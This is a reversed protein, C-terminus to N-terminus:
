QADFFNAAAAVCFPAVLTAHYAEFVASVGGDSAGGLVAAAAVGLKAAHFGTQLNGDAGSAATGSDLDLVTVPASAPGHTSWYAQMLRTNLYFVQPDQDGGCLLTPSAPTWNRLDNLALAQRFPSAPAAAPENTSAVPFSGDPHALADNLYAVRYSNLLLAPTGFGQAFVPALDAPATAPTIFALSPGPPTSDFLADPPLLGAAYIQSRSMTGPLLGTVGPAYQPAFVDATSAYLNGYSKQYGTLLLATVVPSGGSVQGAFEADVFAALAYPGSMPAAATVNLHAAELARQTAMAVYGGQSYGTIFLQGNDGVQSAKPLASRAATLADIMDRSQQSAVLFPHYNLTSSDYGAYNPAVVIYGRAAFFAALLIGEANQQVTLDAINFNHDTSTGHAYLVVPRAGQCAAASGQPIMLAGSATTAEGAGGVTTYEMHFVAVDCPPTGILGIIGALVQTGFSRSSAATVLLALLDTSSSTSVKMPPNQLLTGPLQPAVIATGGASGSGGGCGAIMAATVLLIIARRQIM